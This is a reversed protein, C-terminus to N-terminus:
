DLAGNALPLRQEVGTLQLVRSVAEAKSPLFRLRKHEDARALAAVVIAIGTSDIFTLQRMDVLIECQDDALAEGLEADLTHANALDLEGALRICRSDGEREVVVTLLGARVENKEAPV